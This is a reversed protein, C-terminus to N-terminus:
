APSAAALIPTACAAQLSELTLQAAAGWTFLAARQMGRYKLQRRYEADELLGAIAQGMAGADDHPFYVAADAAVERLSRMDSCAVVTGCAMSELVSLGFGEFSSACITLVAGRYLDALEANSPAAVFRMRDLVGAHRAATYIDSIEWRARGALVWKARTGDPTKWVAQMAALLRAYNRRPIDAGVALLYPGSIANALHVPKASALTAPPLPTFAPDIGNYIVDIHEPPTGYVSAIDYKTQSSVAILRRAHRISRLALRHLARSAATRRVVPDLDFSVDHFTPVVPCVAVRPVEPTFAHYVDPKIRNLARVLPNLLRSGTHYESPIQYSSIEVPHFNGPLKTLLSDDFSRGARPMSYLLHFEHSGASKIWSALINRARQEPGQFEPQVMPRADLAIIM